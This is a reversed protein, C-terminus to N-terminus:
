QYLLLFAEDIREWPERTNIMVEIEKLSDARPLPMSELEYASVAVSGSICRFTYDAVRSKLFCFLVEMSVAPKDTCPKIINLHNEIIIAGYKKIVTGPIIAPILRRNQEKATTRQLIICSETTLLWEDGQMFSFFLSHNRKEARWEFRYDSHISEAWILPYNNRGKCNTLQAKHRNWVLPGTKVQYGWEMLTHPLLNMNKVLRLNEKNRAIIWPKSADVPLSFKGITKVEYKKDSSPIIENVKVFPLVSKNAKYTALMTEQLVDEFIGKRFCIFDFQLPTAKAAILSRLKKFYEGGLFSTPTLFAIVGAPKVMSLALQVFLGYLNAHGFLSDSYAERLAKSLKIKGYPPNGIILDFKHEHSTTQLTDRVEVMVKPRRGTRISHKSLAVELFVQSLWASFPDIEFGRLHEEVHQIVSESDTEEITSIMRLAVPALFAGGGCAPDLVTANQWNIGANEALDILRATLNPPTYYVGNAARTESPLISTYTNGILYSAEIIDLTTAAEGLLEAVRVIGSKIDSLPQSTFFPPLCFDSYDEFKKKWYSKIIHYVITQGWLMREENPIDSIETILITKGSLVTHRAASEEPLNLQSLFRQITITKTIM